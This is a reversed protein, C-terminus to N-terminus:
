LMAVQMAQWFLRVEVKLPGHSPYIFPPPVGSGGQMLGRPQPTVALVYSQGAIGILLDSRVFPLSLLLGM